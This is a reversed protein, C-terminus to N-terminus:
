GRAPFPPGSLRRCPRFRGWGGHTWGAWARRKGALSGPTRRGGRPPPAGGRGAAPTRAPDQQINYLTREMM